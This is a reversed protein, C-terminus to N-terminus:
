SRDDAEVRRVRCLLGRLNATGTAPDHPPASDTLLNLNAERWGFLGARGQEPLWWGTAVVVVRPDLDANLRVRQRIRGRPTEITALDGPRLDLAAATEPNLEVLPEPSRRRLSPIQRQSAHFCFPDKCNTLVLQSGEIGWEQM